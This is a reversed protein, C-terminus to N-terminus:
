KDAINSIVAKRKNGMFTITEIGIKEELTSWLQVSHNKDEITRCLSEMSSEPSLRFDRQGKRLCQSASIELHIMVSSYCLHAGTDTVKQTLEALILTQDPSDATFIEHFIVILVASGNKAPSTTHNLVFQGIFLDSCFAGKM